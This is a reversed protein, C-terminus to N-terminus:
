ATLQHAHYHAIREDEPLEMDYVVVASEGTDAERRNWNAIGEARNPGSRTEAGCGTEIDCRSWFAHPNTCCVEVRTSGCFPCPKIYENEM